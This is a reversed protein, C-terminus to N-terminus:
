HRGKEWASILRDQEAPAKEWLRDFTGILHAALREDDVVVSTTYEAGDFADAVNLLVKKRDIVTFPGNVKEIVRIHTLKQLFSRMDFAPDWTSQVLALHQPAILTRCTVGRRTADGYAKLIHRDHEDPRTEPIVFDVVEHQASDLLDCLCHHFDANGAFSQSTGTNLLKAPERPATAIAM